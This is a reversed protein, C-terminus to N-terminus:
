KRKQKDGQERLKVGPCPLSWKRERRRLIRVNKNGDKAAVCTRKRTMKMQGTGCTKEGQMSWDTWQSWQATEYAPCPSCRTTDTDTYKKNMINNQFPKCKKHKGKHEEGKCINMCKRKRKRRGEQGCKIDCQGWDGWASWSLHECPPPSTSGGEVDIEM